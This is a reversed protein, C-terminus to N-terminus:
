GLESIGSLDIGFEQANKYLEAPNFISSRLKRGQPDYYTFAAASVDRYPDVIIGYGSVPDRWTRSLDKPVDQLDRTM